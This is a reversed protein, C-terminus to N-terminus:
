VAADRRSATLAGALVVTATCFAIAAAGPFSDRASLALAVPPIGALALLTFRTGPWTPPRAMGLLIAALLAGFILLGAYPDSAAIVDEAHRAAASTGPLMLRGAADPVREPFLAIANLGLLAVSLAAVTGACLAAMVAQDARLTRAGAVLAAVAPAGFVVLALWRGHGPLGDALPTGSREFPLVVFAALGAVLGTAAGAALAAGGLRSTRATTAVGAAACLTVTLAFARGAHIPQLLGTADEIMQPLLCLCAVAYGASRVARAARDPRVPGFFGPRRGLWALLALVLIVPVTPGIADTLAIEGGLVLSIAGAALGRSRAGPLLIVRTCGLAFRRREASGSISALEGRMARGWESRAAPLLRAILDLYRAALDRSGM